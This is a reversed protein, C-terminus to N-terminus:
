RSTQHCLQCQCLSVGFFLLAKAKHWAAELRKHHSVFRQIGFCTANYISLNVRCEDAFMFFRWVALYM